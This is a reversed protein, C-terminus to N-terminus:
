NVAEILKIFKNPDLSCSGILFGDLSSINNLQEINKYNIGGGYLIHPTFGFETNITEKIFNIMSILDDIEPIKNKGIAWIPEYSIYINTYYKSDINKLSELIQIKVKDKEVKTQREVLTEGICLICKLNNSLANKLKKNVINDTEHFNIRRESHGIIAYKVGLSYAQNASIEGTYSGSDFESINQIGVNYGSDVFYPIFVSSPCIVVNNYKDLVEIYNLVDNLSMNMKMNAIILKKNEM